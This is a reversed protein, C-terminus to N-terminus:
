ICAGNKYLREIFVTGINLPLPITVSGEFFHYLDIYQQRGHINM